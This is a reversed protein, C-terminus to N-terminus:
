SSPVVHVHTAAHVLQQKENHKKLYAPYARLCECLEKIDAHLKKCNTASLAPFMLLGALAESQHTLGVATMRPKNKQNKRYNNYGQFKEFATPFSIM